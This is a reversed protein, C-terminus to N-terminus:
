RAEGYTQPEAPEKAAHMKSSLRLIGIITKGDRIEGRDIMALLESLPYAHCSLHEGEDPSADGQTLGTALFITLTESCYGPSPYVTALWDIKEARLGTEETLERRACDLPDEGPELKGAPIELLMDDYPKRFQRVLYVNELDDVAVVCAGGNHRVIERRAPHGDHLMVTQVEVDFVRGHFVQDCHVTKETFM